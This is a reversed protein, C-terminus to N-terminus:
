VIYLNKWTGMIPPPSDQQNETTQHDQM